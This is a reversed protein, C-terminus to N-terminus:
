FWWNDTTAGCALVTLLCDSEFVMKGGIFNKGLEKWSVCLTFLILKWGNIREFLYETLTIFM